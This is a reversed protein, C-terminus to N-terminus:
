FELGVDGINPEQFFEYVDASEGKGPNGLVHGNLIRRGQRVFRLFHDFKVRGDVEQLYQFAAEITEFHIGDIFCATPIAKEDKDNQITM